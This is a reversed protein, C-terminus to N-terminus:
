KGEEIDKIIKYARALSIGYANAVDKVSRGKVKHANYIAMRRREWRELTKKYDM